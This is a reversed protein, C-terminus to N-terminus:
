APLARATARVDSATASTRVAAARHLVLRALEPAAGLPRSVPVGRPVAAAIRDPLVGPALVYSAVAVRPAGARRLAGVATAVTPGSASAYAPAVAWWGMEQQWRRALVEITALALPDTSGAAALVVATEGDGPWVDVERLRRELARLVLPHPGLVAGMGVTVGPLHRRARAIARPVDVRSHYAATLLLPVAVVERAGEGALRDMAGRVDPVAHDLYGVATSTGPSRRRIEALLAQVTAAARPDRSGHGIALLARPTRGTM